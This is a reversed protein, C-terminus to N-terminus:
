ERQENIQEAIVTQEAVVIQEAVLLLTDALATQWAAYQAVMLASDAQKCSQELKESLYQCRLAGYSGCASTLSHCWRAMQEMDQAVFAHRLAEGQVQGDELFLSLLRVMVPRSLDQEMRTLHEEDLLPLQGQLAQWDLMM